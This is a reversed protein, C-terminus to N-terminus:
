DMVKIFPIIGSTKGNGRVTEGISRLNGWFSGIGGGRSALLVNENWLTVIGALSDSSENLFCSIPLGRDTGGNSLVPTAPTFWLNAIYEYLRDAHEQDDAYYGSVRAFLDQYTEDPMLYRDKLVAKGFNSLREDKKLDTKILFHQRSKNALDSNKISENPKDSNKANNKELTKKSM